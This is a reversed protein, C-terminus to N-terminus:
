EREEKNLEPPAVLRLRTPAAVSRAADRSSVLYKSGLGDRFRRYDRATIFLVQPVDVEGEIHIADLTRVAEKRAPVPAPARKAATGAALTQAPLGAVLVLLWLRIAVRAVARCKNGISTSM